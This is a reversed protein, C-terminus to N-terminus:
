CTPRGTVSGPKRVPTPSWTSASPTGTTTPRRSPTASGSSWTTTGASRFTTTAPRLHLPRFTDVMVATEETAEKGISAEVSGPQPGHTFGNPHLSLSGMGIGPGQPEHLRRRRLLDGRRLRRQRPQVPGPDGGPPLRVQAARVLVGRLEPRRLDPAGAAAPPHARHDARLRRHQVRVPVPLRGLRGRRLPPQTPTAPGAPATRVLVEVDEDDVELLEDPARLDRECYPSHELFQGRESLYRPPRASTAPPELVSRACRARGPGLPPHHLDPDRRLRGARRRTV